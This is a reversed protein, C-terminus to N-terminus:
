YYNWIALIRLGLAGLMMLAVLLFSVFLLKRILGFFGEERPFYFLLDANVLHFILNWALCYCGKTASWYDLIKIGYAVFIALYVFALPLFIYTGFIRM